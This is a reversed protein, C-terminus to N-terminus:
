AADPLRYKHKKRIQRYAARNRYATIVEDEGVLVVAGELKAYRDERLNTVPIDRRRLVYFTVGTRHIPKGYHRVYHIESM